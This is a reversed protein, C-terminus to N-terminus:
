RVRRDHRLVACFITLLRAGPLGSHFPHKSVAMAKRNAEPNMPKGKEAMTALLKFYNIYHAPQLMGDEDAEEPM